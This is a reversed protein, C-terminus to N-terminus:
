RITPTERMIAEGDLGTSFAEDGVGVAAAASTIVGKERVQEGNLVTVSAAMIKLSSFVSM